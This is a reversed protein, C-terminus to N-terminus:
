SLEDLIAWEEEQNPYKAHWCPENHMYSVGMGKITYVILFDNSEIKQCLTDVDHGQVCQAFGLNLLSPVVPLIDDTYGSGQIRNNDVIVKLNDLNYKKALLISEWTTGEQCEGDGLLVYVKGPKKQIKKALAVGLAVPFGHGESGTSWYVGNRLDRHPHGELKPKYGREQLLAYYVWCGHGKSLIFVDDKELIYDYLALLIEACSFSGGYHYGGNEKSLFFAKTRIEKSRKSLM